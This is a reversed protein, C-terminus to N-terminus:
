TPVEHLQEDDDSCPGLGDLHSRDNVAEAGLRARLDHEARGRLMALHEVLDNASKPIRGSM